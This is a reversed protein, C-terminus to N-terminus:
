PNQSIDFTLTNTDFSCTRAKNFISFPSMCHAALDKVDVTGDSIIRAYYKGYSPSDKLQSQYIQYKLM